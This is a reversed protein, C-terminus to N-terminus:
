RAIRLAPMRQFRGTAQVAVIPCNAMRNSSRKGAEARQPRSVCIGALRRVCVNPCVRWVRAGSPVPIM